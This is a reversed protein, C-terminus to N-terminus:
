PGVSNLKGFCLTEIGRLPSNADKPIYKDHTRDELVLSHELAYVTVGNRCVQFEHERASEYQYYRQLFFTGEKRIFLLTMGEHRIVDELTFSVYDDPESTKRRVHWGFGPLVPLLPMLVPIQLMAYLRPEILRSTDVKPYKPLCAQCTQESRNYTYIQLDDFTPCIQITDKGRNDASVPRQRWVCTDADCRVMERKITQSMELPNRDPHRQITKIQFTLSPEGFWYHRFLFGYESTTERQCEAQLKSRYGTSDWDAPLIDVSEQSMPTQFVTYTM